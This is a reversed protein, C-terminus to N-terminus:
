KRTNRVDYIRPCGDPLPEAEMCGCVSQKRLLLHLADIERLLGNIVTM